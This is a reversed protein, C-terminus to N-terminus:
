RWEMSKHQLAVSSFDNNFDALGGEWNFNFHDIRERQKGKAILFDIYDLAKKKMYDPMLNIKKELLQTNM